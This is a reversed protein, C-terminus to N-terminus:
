VIACQLSSSPDLAKEFARIFPCFSGLEKDKSLVPALAPLTLTETGQFKFKARFFSSIGTVLSSQLARSSLQTGRACCQKFLRRSVKDWLIIIEASKGSSGQFYYILYQIYKKILNISL